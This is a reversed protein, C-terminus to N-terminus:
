GFGGLMALARPLADKSNKWPADANRFDFKLTFWELDGEMEELRAQQAPLIEDLFKERKGRGLNEAAELLAIFHPVCYGKQGSILRADDGGKGWIYFFTDIYRAFTNEVKRCVYCSDHTKQMHNKLRTVTASKDKGFIPAPLRGKIIASIEKNQQQFYTHLMLGLGLRNQEAYMADLHRKCFGIRNTDMRVDDEMYAPGLIFQIADGELKERMVCFACNKPERLADLVPITHIHDPM